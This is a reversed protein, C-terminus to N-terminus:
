HETRLETLKTEHLACFQYCNYPFDTVEEINICLYSVSYYKM